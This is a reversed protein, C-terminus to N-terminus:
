ANARPFFRPDPPSIWRDSHHELAHKRRTPRVRWRFNAVDSRKGVELDDLLDADHDLALCLHCGLGAGFVDPSKALLVRSRNSESSKSVAAATRRSIAHRRLTMCDRGIIPRIHLMPPHMMRSLRDHGVLLEKPLALVGAVGDFLSSKSPAASRNIKSFFGRAIECQSSLRARPSSWRASSTSATIFSTKLPILIRISSIGVRVARSTSMQQNREPGALIGISLRQAHDLLTKALLEAVSFVLAYAHDVVIRVFHVDVNRDFREMISNPIEGYVDDYNAVYLTLSCWDM